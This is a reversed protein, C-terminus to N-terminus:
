KVTENNDKFILFLALLMFVLGIFRSSDFHVIEGGFLGFQDIIFGAVVQGVIATLNTATVGIKPVALITLFMYGVGLFVALLQWTPAQAIALLHGKGFFILWLAMFLTGTLFTVLATELTGLKNSLKGNISSQASLTVGGLFTIIVTIISM